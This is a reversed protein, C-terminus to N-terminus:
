KAEREFPCGGEMVKWSECIWANWTSYWFMKKGCRPCIRDENEAKGEKHKALVARAIKMARTGGPSFNSPPYNNNVFDLDALVEVLADRLEKNAALLTDELPRSQWQREDMQCKSLPCFPSSCSVLGTSLSKKIPSSCLPCLKLENSM